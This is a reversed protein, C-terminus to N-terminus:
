FVMGKPAACVQIAWILSHGVGRTYLRRYFNEIQDLIMTESRTITMRYDFNMTPKKTTILILSINQQDHEM